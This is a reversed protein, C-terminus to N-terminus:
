AQEGLLRTLTARWDARSIPMPWFLLDEIAKRVFGHSRPGARLEQNTLIL